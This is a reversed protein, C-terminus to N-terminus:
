LDEHHRTYLISRNHHGVPAILGMQRLCYAMKQALSRPRGLARALDATTFPDPLATPLLDALCSPTEFIRHDVIELLRREVTVWGRRRWARGPEHRRIEEERTVVVDLSFSPRALLRPFSVLEAFVDEVGGHKPSKRRAVRAGGDDVRVIWRDQPVPYVLRLPHEATLAWLKKKIGAFRGTQIEILLDGRVIDVVYGAVTVELQDGPRAYWAKLAAHLPGENLIGIHQSM